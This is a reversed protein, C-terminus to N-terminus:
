LSRYAEEEQGEAEGTWSADAPADEVGEEDMRRQTPNRGQEDVEAGAHDPEEAM